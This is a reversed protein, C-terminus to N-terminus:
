LISVSGDTSGNDVVLVRVGQNGEFLSDVCELTDKARNWNVTIAIPRLAQPM